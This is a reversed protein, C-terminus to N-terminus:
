DGVYILSLYFASIMLAVIAVAEVQTSQAVCGFNPTLRRFHSLICSLNHRNRFHRNCQHDRTHNCAAMENTATLWWIIPRTPETPQCQWKTLPLQLEYNDSETSYKCHNKNNNISNGVTTPPAMATEWSLRGRVIFWSWSLDIRQGTKDVGFLSRSYGVHWADRAWM